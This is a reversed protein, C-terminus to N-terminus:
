RHKTFLIYIVISHRETPPFTQTFTPPSSVFYFPTFLITSATSVYLWWPLFILHATIQWTNRKFFDYDSIHKSCRSLHVCFFLVVFIRRSCFLFFAPEASHPFDHRWEPTTNQDHRGTGHFIALYGNGSLVTSLFHCTSWILTRTTPTEILTRNRSDNTLWCARALNYRRGEDVNLINECVASGHCM